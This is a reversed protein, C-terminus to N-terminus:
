NWIIVRDQNNFQKCHTIM